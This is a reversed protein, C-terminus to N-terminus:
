GPSTGTNVSPISVWQQRPHGVSRGRSWQLPDGGRHGARRRLRPGRRAARHVFEVATAAPGTRGDPNRMLRHAEEIVTLHRLPPPAM